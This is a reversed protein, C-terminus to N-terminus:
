SPPEESGLFANRTGIKYTLPSPVCCTHFIKTMPRKWDRPYCSESISTVWHFPCNEQTRALTDAKLTVTMAESKKYNIKLNSIYGYHAFEKMLNPITTHPKTLFFLLDDAYAAIKYMRNAVEFGAISQNKNIWRIFPELSLIFLLPSLPCGQRNGNSIQVKDTLIGNVKIKASPNQYLATIWTMM